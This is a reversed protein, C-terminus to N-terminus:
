QKNSYFKILTRQHELHINILSKDCPSIVEPINFTSSVNPGLVFVAAGARNNAVDLKASVFYLLEKYTMAEFDNVIQEIEDLVKEADAYSYNDLTELALLQVGLLARDLDRPDSAKELIVSNEASCGEPPTYPKNYSCAYLLFCMVLTLTISVLINLAKKM